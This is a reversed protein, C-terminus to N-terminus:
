LEFTFELDSGKMWEEYLQDFRENQAVTFIDKWGGVKGKRVFPSSQQDIGFKEMFHAKQAQPNKKMSEISCHDAVRQTAEGDLDVGLFDALKRITGNFDQKVDEYKLFIVNDEHRREWWHLVHTHWGHIGELKGDYFDDLFEDFLDYKKGAVSPMVKAFNHFSVLMDKPNRAVYVIKPKKTALQKPLEDYNLHTTLLRPSTMKDLDFDPPVMHGENIKRLIPNTDVSLIFELYPARVDPPIDKISDVDGGNLVLSLIEKFWTTGSKAYTILFVDDDRVEFGRTKEVDLKFGPKKKGEDPKGSM